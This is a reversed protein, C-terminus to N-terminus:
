PRGQRIQEGDGMRTAESGEQQRWTEPLRACDEFSETKTKAYIDKQKRTGYIGEQILVGKM